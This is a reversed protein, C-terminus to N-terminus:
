GINWLSVLTIFIAIFGACISYLMWIERNARSNDEKVVYWRYGLFVSTTYFIWTILITFFAAIFSLVLSSLVKYLIIFMLVKGVPTGALKNTEETIASMSERVALGVEKGIGIYSSAVVQTTKAEVVAKQQPTLLSDPVEAAFSISFISLILFLYRM